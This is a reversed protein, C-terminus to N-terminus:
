MVELDPKWLSLHKARKKLIIDREQDERRKRYFARCLALYGLLFSLMLLSGLISVYPLMRYEECHNKLPKKKESFKDSYKRM